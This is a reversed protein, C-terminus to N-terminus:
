QLVETLSIIAPGGIIVLVPPMVLGMLPLSLITPMRAAKDELRLMRENRGETAIVRMSQALSTGYREAQLLAMVLNQLESVNTRYILNALAENRDSLITLEDATIQLEEALRPAAMGLESAVRKLSNDLSLGAEACIVLLDMADPITTRIAESRRKVFHKLVYEVVVSGVVLGILISLFQFGISGAFYDGITVLFYACIAGAFAFSFKVGLLVTLADPTRFGAQALLRALKERDKEGIFPIVRVLPSLQKVAVNYIMQVPTVADGGDIEDAEFWFQGGTARQGSITQLRLKIISDRRASKASIWSVAGLAILVTMLFITVPDGILEIFNASGSMM